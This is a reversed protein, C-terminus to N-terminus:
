AGCVGTEGGHWRGGDLLRVYFILGDCMAWAMTKWVKGARLEEFSSLGMKKWKIRLMRATRSRYSVWEEGPQLKPRFTLRLIKTEWRCVTRANNVNWTWSASCNLATSSVHSVVRQCKTLLPVSKSHYIYADRWWSGMAKRFTKKLDKHARGM